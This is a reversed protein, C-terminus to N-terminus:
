RPLSLRLSVFSEAPLKIHVAGKRVGPLSKLEKWDEANTTWVLKAPKAKKAPLQLKLDYPHSQNNMFLVNWNNHLKSAVANVGEPLQTQSIDYRVSGPRHFHAFHKLM